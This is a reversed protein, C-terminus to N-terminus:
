SNSREAHIGLKFISNKNPMSPIETNNKGKDANNVRIAITADHFEICCRDLRCKARNNANSPMVM